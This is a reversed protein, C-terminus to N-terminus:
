RIVRKQSCLRTGSRSKTRSARRVALRQRTRPYRELEDVLRGFFTVARRIPEPNTMDVGALQM